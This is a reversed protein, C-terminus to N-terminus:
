GGLEPLRELLDRANYTDPAMELYKAFYGMYQKPDGTSFGIRGARYYLEANSPDVKIATKISQMAPEFKKEMWLSIALGAHASKSHPHIAAAKQYLEIAAKMDGDIYLANAETVLNNSRKVDEDSVGSVMALGREELLRVISTSGSAKAIALVSNNRHNLIKPDAGATLLMRVVAENRRRAAQHLATEGVSTKANLDIGDVALLDGVMDEHGDYAVHLLPTYGKQGPINLTSPANKLLFRFASRNTYNAALALPTDGSKTPIDLSAGARQLMRLANSNGYRAAYHVAQWGESNTLHVDAGESILTYMQKLHKRKVAYHLLTRGTEDRADPNGGQGLYRILHLLNGQNVARLGTILEASDGPTAAAWKRVNALAEPYSWVSKAVFNWGPQVEDLQKQVVEPKGHLYALAAFEHRHVDIDPWRKSLHEYGTNLIEWDFDFQVYESSGQATLIWNAMRYYTEARRHEPLSNWVTQLLTEMRQASGGWRPLTKRVLGIFAHHFEPGVSAMRRALTLISHQHDLGTSPGKPAFPISITTLQYLMASDLDNRLVLQAGLDAAQAMWYKTGALDKKAVTHSYGSGRHAYALKVTTSLLAALAHASKPRASQWAVIQERRREFGQVDRAAIDDTFAPYYANLLWDGNATREASDWADIALRELEPYARADLFERVRNQFPKYAAKKHDILRNLANIRRAQTAQKIPDNLPHPIVRAIQNVEIAYQEPRYLFVVDTDVEGLVGRM